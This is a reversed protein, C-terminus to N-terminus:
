ALPANECTQLEEHTNINSFADPEDYFGVEVVNL